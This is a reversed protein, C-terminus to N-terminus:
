GGTSDRRATKVSDIHAQIYQEENELQRVVEQVRILQREVQKQYFTHSRLFQEETIGFKGYVLAKLSDANISDPQADRYTSIHQMEILLDIYNQESILDDPKPVEDPGMCGYGALVALILVVVQISLTKM